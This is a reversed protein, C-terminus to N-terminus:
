GGMCPFGSRVRRRASVAVKTARMAAPAQTAM